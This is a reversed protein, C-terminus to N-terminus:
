ATRGRCAAVGFRACDAPIGDTAHISSLMSRVTTAPVRLLVVLQEAFSPRFTLPVTTSETPGKLRRCCRSVYGVLVVSGGGGECCVRKVSTCRVLCTSSGEGLCALDLFSLRRVASDADRSSPLFGGSAMSPRLLRRFPGDGGSAM